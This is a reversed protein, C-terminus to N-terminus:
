QVIVTGKMDAHFECFYDFTGPEAFTQSFSDGQNLTGSQLEARDQATATHPDPDSNTWTVTAGVPIEVPDPVYTFDKIDVLVADAVAAGDEGTEASAAAAEGAVAATLYVTVDTQEGQEALVAVGSHGSDNLEGLGVVLAGDEDLTGSLNGCAIYTGIDEASQHINIAYGGTRLDELAADVMTVSREVPIAAADAGADAETAALAIDTLMFTPNPDLEDCSGVHIHAPHLDARGEGQARAGPVGTAIALALMLSGALMMVPIGLIQKRLNRVRIMRNSRVVHKVDVQATRMAETAGRSHPM